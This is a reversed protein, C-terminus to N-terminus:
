NRYINGLVTVGLLNAAPVAKSNGLNWLFEKHSNERGGLGVPRGGERTSGDEEEGALLAPGEELRWLGQWHPPQACDHCGRHVPVAPVRVRRHSRGREAPHGRLARPVLESVPWLWHLIQLPWVLLWLGWRAGIWSVDLWMLRGDGACLCISPMILSLLDHWIESHCIRSWSSKYKCIVEFGNRSKTSQLFWSKLFLEEAKSIFPVTYLWFGWGALIWVLELHM